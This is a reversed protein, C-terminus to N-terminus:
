RTEALQLENALSAIEEIAAALDEASQSQQRAAAAAQNAAGSAEEAAAAIQQIGAVVQTTTGLIEQASRASEEAGAKLAATEAIVRALREGTVRNRSLEAAALANIQDVERRVKAIQGLIDAVHDNMVTANHSADRALTRVDGSVVAFRGGAEGARAAEVAGSMALMTIQIALLGLGDAFRAISGALSQLDDLTGMVTESEDVTKGVGEVLRQVAGACDGLMRAVLDTREVSAKANASSHRASKEIEEMAASAQQTAAAQLQAGRSIQDIAVLIEGAAGSLEQVMASLEEADEVARAAGNAAADGGVLKEVTVALSQSAAQSRSLSQQQQLVARQAEAAAAAQEEAASSVSEAGRRSENVAGLAEVTSTLMFRSDDSVKAMEARVAALAENIRTGSGAETEAVAAASKLRDALTRVTEAVRGALTRIESSRNESTEALARIEDAIVAFGRGEEGARAAEIAANLALLNTQDAIDAVASTIDGIRAAQGEMQEITAVTVMQRRANHIVADVSAEVALGQEILLDNLAETRQQGAASQLRVKEFAEAMTTIAALSEHAAGAAEEAASAIQAMARGLEEAAGAAESIGGALEVAAAGIRLDATERRPAAKRAVIRKPPTSATAEAAPEAKRGRSRGALATTKVLAM